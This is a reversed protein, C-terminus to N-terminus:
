SKEKKRMEFFMLFVEQGLIKHYLKGVLRGDPLRRMRDVVGRMILPNQEQEYDILLSDSGKELKFHGFRINDLIVNDGEGSADAAKRHKLLELSAWPFWPVVVYFEGELEEPEPITGESYLDYLEKLEDFIM